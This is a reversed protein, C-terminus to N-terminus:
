TNLSEDRDGGVYWGMWSDELVDAPFCSRCVTVNVLWMLPQILGVRFVVFLRRSDGACSCPLNTKNWVDYEGEGQPHDRSAHRGAESVLVLWFTIAMATGFTWLSFGWAEAEEGVMVFGGEVEDEELFEAQSVM